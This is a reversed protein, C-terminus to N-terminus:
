RWSASTERAGIDHVICGAGGGGGGLADAVKPVDSAAASGEEKVLDGGDGAANKGAHDRRGGDLLHRAPPWRGERRIRADAGAAASDGDGTCPRGGRRAVLPGRCLGLRKCMGHRRPVEVRASHARCTVGGHAACNACGGRDVVASHTICVGDRQLSAKLM